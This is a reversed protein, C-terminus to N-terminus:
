EYTEMGILVSKSPFREGDATPAPRSSAGAGRTCKWKSRALNNGSHMRSQRPLVWPLSSNSTSFLLDVEAPRLMDHLPTVCWMHTAHFCHHHISAYAIRKQWRHATLIDTGDHKLTYAYRDSHNLRNHPRIFWIHSLNQCSAYSSTYKNLCSDYARPVPKARCAYHRIDGTGTHVNLLM